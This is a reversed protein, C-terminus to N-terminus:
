RHNRGIFIYDNEAVLAPVHAIDRLKGEHQQIKEVAAKVFAHLRDIHQGENHRRDDHENGHQIAEAEIRQPHKVAVHRMLGGLACQAAKQGGEALRSPVSAVDPQHQRKAHIGKPMGFFPILSHRGGDKGEDCAHRDARCSRIGEVHAKHRHKGDIEVDRKAARM